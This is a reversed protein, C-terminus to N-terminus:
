RMIGSNMINSALLVEVAQILISELYITTCGGLLVKYIILM